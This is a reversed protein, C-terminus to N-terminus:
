EINRNKYLLQGLFAFLVTLGICILVRVVPVGGNATLYPNMWSLPSLWRLGEMWSLAGTIEDVPITLTTNEGFYTGLWSGLDRIKYLNGLILTGLTLRNTWRLEAYDAPSKKMAYLYSASMLMLIVLGGFSFSKLMAALGIQRQETNVSGISITLMMVSHWILYQLCFTVVLWIYKFLALQKRSMFQNIWEHISGNREDWWLAQIAQRCKRRAWFYNISLMAFFLFFLFSVNMREPSLGLLAYFAEPMAYLSSAITFFVTKEFRYGCLLLLPVVTTIICEFIYERKWRSWEIKILPRVKLGIRKM